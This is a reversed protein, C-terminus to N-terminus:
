SGNCCKNAGSKRHDWNKGLNTFHKAALVAANVNRTRALTGFYSDPKHHIFGGLMEDCFAAYDRTYLIFEHWAADIKPPPRLLSGEYAGCLWLFRKLDDFLGEAAKKGLGLKDALRAKLERNDYEM